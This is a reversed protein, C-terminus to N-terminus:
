LLNNSSIMERFKPDVLIKLTYPIQCSYYAYNFYAEYMYEKKEIFLFYTMMFLCKIMLISSNILNVLLTPLGKKEVAFIRYPVSRGNNIYRRKIDKPTANKKVIQYHEMLAKPAWGILYGKKHLKHCLGAEGDGILWEGIQDPNFGGVNYLVRKKINFNGGNIYLDKKILIEDGYDLKGLLPEYPIVWKPPATDWKISIKGAVAVVKDCREFVNSIEKLWVPSLIGDDDTFSLIEYKAKKAGTHRAYVLGQRKELIYTLSINSYNKIYDECVNKTNDKSNNDVIIIEFDSKPYEQKILSDLCMPLINARNYTPVIVSIKMKETMTPWRNEVKFEM